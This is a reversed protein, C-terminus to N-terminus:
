DVAICVNIYTLAYLSEEEEKKWLKQKTKTKGANFLRKCTNGISLSSIAFVVLSRDCIFM